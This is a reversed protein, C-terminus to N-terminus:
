IYFRVEKFSCAVMELPVFQVGRPTLHLVKNCYFLGVHTSSRSGNTFFVICTQIPEMLRQFNGIGNLQNEIRQGLDEGTIQQWAECAFENCTYNASWIRDLLNDISM